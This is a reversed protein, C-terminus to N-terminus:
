QMLNSYLFFFFIIIYYAIILIRILELYNPYGPEKQYISDKVSFTYQTIYNWKGGLSPYFLSLIGATLSIIYSLFASPLFDPLWFETKSSDISLIFTIFGLWFLINCIYLLFVKRALSPRINENGLVWHKIHTRLNVISSFTLAM